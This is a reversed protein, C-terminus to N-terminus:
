EDSGSNELEKIKDLINEDETARIKGWENEVDKWEEIEYELYKKLENWNNDKIIMQEKYESAIKIHNVIDEQLNTINDKLKVIRKELEKIKIKQNTAKVENGWNNGCLNDIYDRLVKIEDCSLRKYDANEKFDLIEKIENNRM